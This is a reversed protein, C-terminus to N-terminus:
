LREFLLFFFVFFFFFLLALCEFTTLKTEMRLIHWFVFRRGQPLTGLHLNRNLKLIVDAMVEGTCLLVCMCVFVGEWVSPSLSHYYFSSKTRNRATHQVTLTQIELASTLVSATLQLGLSQPHLPNEPTNHSQSESVTTSSWLIPVNRWLDAFIM